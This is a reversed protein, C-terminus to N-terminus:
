HARLRVHHTPPAATSLLLSITCVCGAADLYISAIHTGRIAPTASDLILGRHYREQKFLSRLPSCIPPVCSTSRSAATNNVAKSNEPGEVVTLTWCNPM